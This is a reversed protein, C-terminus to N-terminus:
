WPMRGKERIKKENSDYKRDNLGEEMEVTSADDPFGAEKDEDYKKNRDDKRYNVAEEKEIPYNDDSLEAESTDMKDPSAIKPLTVKRNKHSVTRDKEYEQYSM